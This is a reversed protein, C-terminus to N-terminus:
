EASSERVRAEARELAIDVRRSADAVAVYFGLGIHGALPSLDDLARAADRWENVAEEGSLELRLEPPNIWLADDQMAARAEEPTFGIRETLHELM